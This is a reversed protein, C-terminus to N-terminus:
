AARALLTADAVEDLTKFEGLAALTTLLSRYRALWFDAYCDHLGLVTFDSAEIRRLAQREWEGYPQRARYLSFDDLHIPIKVLGHELIPHSVGLVQDSTALWDFNRFVLNYDSWEANPRSQPPRFGRIRRDVLRCRYLQDYHRPDIPRNLRAGVARRLRHYHATLPWLRRIRHSYSHFALCHGGHDIPSRVEDFIQGVVNYTARADAAAEDALGTML